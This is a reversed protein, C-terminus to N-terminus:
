YKIIEICTKMDEILVNLNHYNPALEYCKEFELLTMDYMGKITDKAEINWYVLKLALNM